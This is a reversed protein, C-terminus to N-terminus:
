YGSTSAMFIYLLVLMCCSSWVSEIIINGVFSTTITTSKSTITKSKDSTHLSTGLASDGDDGPEDPPPDGKSVVEVQEFQM